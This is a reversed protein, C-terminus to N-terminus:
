VRPLSAGLLPDAPNIAKKKGAIAESGTCAPPSRLLTQHRGRCTLLPKTNLRRLVRLHVIPELKPQRPPTLLAHALAPYAQVRQRTALKAQRREAPRACRLRLRSMSPVPLDLKAAHLCSPTRLSNIASSIHFINPRSLKQSPCEEQYFLRWRQLATVLPNEHYRTDSERIVYVM